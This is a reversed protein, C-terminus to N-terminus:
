EIVEDARALLTPPVTLGLRHRLAEWSEREILGKSLLQSRTRAGNGLAGPAQRL